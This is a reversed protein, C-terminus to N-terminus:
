KRPLEEQAPRRRAGSDSPDCGISPRFQPRPFSTKFRFLVIKGNKNYIHVFQFLNSSIISKVKIIVHNLTELSCSVIRFFHYRNRLFLESRTRVKKLITRVVCINEPSKIKIIQILLFKWFNSYECINTGIFAWLALIRECEFIDCMNTGM